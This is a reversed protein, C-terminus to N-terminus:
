RYLKVDDVVISGTCPPVPSGDHSAVPVIVLWQISALKSADTPTPPNGPYDPNHFPARITRPQSTLDSSPIRTQPPYPGGARYYQHEPDISEYTLSCGSLSGSAKFEVGAFGTGDVCRDFLLQAVLFQPKAGPAASVNIALNDGTTTYTLSSSPVTATPVVSVIRGQVGGSALGKGSQREASFDAILGDSPAVSTNAATCSRRPIPTEGAPNDLNAEPRAESTATTGSSACASAFLLFSFFGATSSKRNM